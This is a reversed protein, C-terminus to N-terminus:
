IGRLEKLVEPLGDAFSVHAPQWNLERKAKDARLRISSTVAEVMPFGYLLGILWGPVSRVPALGLGSAILDVAVKRRLPLGDGLFYTEGYRGNELALAYAEGVDDVHVFSWYNQGKGLLRYRGALMMGVTTELLGGAGYVYGPSIILVRLGRQEHLKVLEEAMVAHGRALMCPRQPMSEDIWDDGYGAHTLAGSSYVLPKRRELCAAALTRTMISDSRHMAVIKPRSWRGNAKEQAAHVVADVEAVLPEYTEPQWMDGVAISVGDRELSRGKEPDRLFGLVTHGHRLLADVIARGVFGTAGTVLVHM